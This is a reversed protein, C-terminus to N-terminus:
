VASWTNASTCVKVVGGILALEGIECVDTDASFVPIKLRGDDIIKISKSTRIDSNLNGLLEKTSDIPKQTKVEPPKGLKIDLVKTNKKTKIDTM